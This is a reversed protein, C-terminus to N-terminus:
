YVKKDKTITMKIVPPIRSPFDFIDFFRAQVILVQGYEGYLYCSVTLISNKALPLKTSSQTLIKEITRNFQGVKQAVNARCM